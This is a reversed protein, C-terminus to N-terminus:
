LTDEADQLAILITHAARLRDLVRCGRRRHMRPLAADDALLADLLDQHVAELRAVLRLTTLRHQLPTPATLPPIPM